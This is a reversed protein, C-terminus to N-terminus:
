GGTLVAGKQPRILSRHAASCSTGDTVETSLVSQYDDTGLAQKTADSAGILEMVLREHSLVAGRCAHRYLSVSARDQPLWDFTAFNVAEACNHGHSFGAHYARPLTIIFEGPQQLAHVVRVGRERFIEPSVMTVIRQLLQSSHILAHSFPVPYLVVGSAPVYM